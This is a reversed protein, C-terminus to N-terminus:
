SDGQEFAIGFSILGAALVCGGLSLNVIGLSITAIGIGTAELLFAILNNNKMQTGLGM